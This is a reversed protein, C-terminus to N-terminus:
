GVGFKCCVRARKGKSMLLHRGIHAYAHGILQSAAVLGHGIDIDTDGLLSSQKM